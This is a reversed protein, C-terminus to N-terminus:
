EAPEILEALEAICPFAQLSVRPAKIGLGQELRALLQIALLSHGGLDAFRDYIGIKEIGFLEQWIQAIAIESRTGPAVYNQTHATTTTVAATPSASHTAYQFHPLQTLPALPTDTVQKLVGLFNDKLQEITASKFLASNYVLLGSLGNDREVMVLELDYKSLVAIDPLKEVKLEPFVLGSSSDTQSQHQHLVFMIRFLPNTTLNPNLKGLLREFPLDQNAYAIRSIQAIQTLLDRFSIAASFDAPILINNAFSGIMAETEALRRNSVITGVALKEQRTYAYLLSQFAALLSIFLTVGSQQSLTRIADALFSPLSFVLSASNDPTNSQHTYDRPLGTVLQTDRLQELWWTTQRSTETGELWHRHWAAFDAYQATLPPLSSPKGMRFASYLASLERFLVATSWGDFIYLHTTLLFLYEQGSSRLLEARLLPTTGLDFPTLVCHTVAAAIESERVTATLTRLDRVRLHIHTDPNISQVPYHGTTKCSIRLVEHRQILTNLAKELADVKLSGTLRFIFPINGKFHNNPDLKSLLWIREQSFSLPLTEHNRDLQPLTGNRQSTPHSDRSALLQLLDTKSQKIADRLAPTMAGKPANCCLKGDSVSLQIDLSKLELLLKEAPKVFPAQCPFIRSNLVLQRAPKPNM